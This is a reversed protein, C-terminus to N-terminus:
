QASCARSHRERCEESWVEIYTELRNLPLKRPDRSRITLRITELQLKEQIVTSVENVLRVWSAQSAQTTSKLKVLTQKEIGVHRRERRSEDAEKWHVGHQRRDSRPEVSICCGAQKACKDNISSNCHRQMRTVKPGEVKAENGVKTKINTDGEAKRESICSEM